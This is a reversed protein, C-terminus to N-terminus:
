IIQFYRLVLFVVTGIAILLWGVKTTFLAKVISFVTYIVVFVLIFLNYIMNWLTNWRRFLAKCIVTVHADGTLGTAPDTKGAGKVTYRKENPLVGSDLVFTVKQGQITITQQREKKSPQHKLELTGYIDLERSDTMPGVPDYKAPVKGIAIMIMALQEAHAPLKLHTAQLIKKLIEDTATQDWDALLLDQKIQRLDIQRGGILCFEPTRQAMLQQQLQAKFTSIDQRYKGPFFGNKLRYHVIEAAKMGNSIGVVEATQRVLELVVQNNRPDLNVFQPVLSSCDVNRDDFRILHLKLQITNEDDDKANKGLTYQDSSVLKGNKYKEFIVHTAKEQDVDRGQADVYRTVIKEDDPINETEAKDRVQWVEEILNGNEDLVRIVRITAKDPSVFNHDDDMYFVEERTGTHPGKEVPDPAPYELLPYCLFLAAQEPALQAKPHLCYSPKQHTLDDFYCAKQADTWVCQEPIIRELVALLKSHLSIEWGMHIRRVRYSTGSLEISSKDDRYGFVKGQVNGTADLLVLIGQDDTWHSRWHLSGININLPPRPGSITCAASGMKDLGRFFLCESRGTFNRSCLYYTPKEPPPPPNDQDLITAKRSLSQLADRMQRANAYRDEPRFSCAKLVVAKLAASGNLPANLPEGAIRRALADQNQTFNPVAPPLPLFPGRCKNLLWYLVLGLSYVDVTANYKKGAAIEPAMFMLTGVQTKAQSADSMVRSIGFDGLKFNGNEAIFINQPKIDRHIIKMEQCATLADCLDLGLRIIQPETSVAEMKKMLPTLLEMRILITWSLQDKHPIHQFDYCHVIHSNDQLKLMINYEDMFSKVQSKLHETISRDDMGSLRMFEIESREQPIKMVKLACTEVHGFTDRHIKYVSGFGGKGLEAGLEWGPLCINSLDMGIM